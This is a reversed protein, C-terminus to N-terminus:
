KLINYLNKWKEKDKWPRVLIYKFGMEEVITQFMIQEKRQKGTETKLELFFTRAGPRIVILDSVGDRMGQRKMQIVNIVNDAFFGNPVHFAYINHKTLWNFVKVQFSSEKM